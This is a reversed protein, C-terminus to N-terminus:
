RAGYEPGSMFSFSVKSDQALFDTHNKLRSIDCLEDVINFPRWVRWGTGAKRLGCCICASEHDKKSESALSDTHSGVTSPPILATFVLLMCWRCQMEQPHCLCVVKYHNTGPVPRAGLCWRGFTQTYCNRQPYQAWNHEYKTQLNPGTLPYPVLFSISWFSRQSYELTEQRLSKVKSACFLSNWPVM